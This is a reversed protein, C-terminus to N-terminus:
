RKMESAILIPVMVNNDTISTYSGVGFYTGKVSVIDNELIRPAKDPLLYQIYVISKPDSDVAVRYTNTRDEQEIVQVVKGRFAMGKAQYSKPNRVIETYNKKTIKYNGDQDPDGLSVKKYGKINYSTIRCAPVSMPGYFKHNFSYLGVYTAEITVTDNEMIHIDLNNNDIGAIIIADQSKDVVMQYVTGSDGVAVQTVTATFSIAKSQYNKEDRSFTKYNKKTIKFTDSNSKASAAQPKGPIEISTAFCSPISIQEGITSEYTILGGFTGVVNVTDNELIRVTKVADPVSVFIIADDSKDIAMRYQSEGSGEIVQVVKASFAIKENLHEVPRRAYDMYAQKTVKSNGQKDKAITGPAKYGKVSVSEAACAPITIYGGYKSVYTELGTYKGYVVITDNVLTRVSVLSEPVSLYVVKDSDSDVAARIVTNDSGEKVEIAKGTFMILEEEHLGPNKAYFDYNVKTLKTYGKDKAATNNLQTKIEDIAAALEESTAQEVQKNSIPHIILAAECLPVTVSMDMTSNYTYNQKFVAYVAVKEDILFRETNDPVTYTVLIIEEYKKDLAIRYVTQVDEIVQIVTGEFYVNKGVNKEPKRSLQQALHITEYKGTNGLQDLAIKSKIQSYLEYLKKENLGKVTIARASASGLMMILTVVLVFISIRKLKAM